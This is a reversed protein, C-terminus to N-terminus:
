IILSHSLIGCSQNLITTYSSCTEVLYVVSQSRAPGSVMSHIMDCPCKATTLLGSAAGCWLITKNRQAPSEVFWWQKVNTM